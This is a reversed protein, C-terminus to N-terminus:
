LPYRGWFINQSHLPFCCILNKIFSIRNHFLLPSSLSSQVGWILSSLDSIKDVCVNRGAMRCKKSIFVLFCPCFLFCLYLIIKVLYQGFWHNLAIYLVYIMRSSWITNCLININQILNHLSGTTTTLHPPPPPSIGFEVSNLSDIVPASRPIRLPPGPKRFLCPRQLTWVSFCCLFGLGGSGGFTLQVPRTNLRNVVLCPPLMAQYDQPLSSKAWATPQLTVAASGGISWDTTHMYPLILATIMSQRSQHPPPPSPEYRGGDVVITSYEIYDCRWLM